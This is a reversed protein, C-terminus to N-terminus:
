KHFNWDYYCRIRVWGNWRKALNEHDLVTTRQDRSNQGSAVIIIHACLGEHSYCRNKSWNMEISRSKMWRRSSYNKRAGTSLLIEPARKCWNPEHFDSRTVFKVKGNMFRQVRLNWSKLLPIPEILVNKPLDNVICLLLQMIALQSCKERSLFDSDVQNRSPPSLPASNQQSAATKAATSLTISPNTSNTRKKDLDSAKKKTQKKKTATAM